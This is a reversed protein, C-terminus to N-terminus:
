ARSQLLAAALAQTESDIVGDCLRPRFRRQFAIIAKTLDSIDYGYNNVAQVTAAEAGEPAAGIAPTAAALGRAALRPWPFLEGPDMKRAPAVDSHGVVMDPAISHRACIDALLLELAAIQAEPFPRYGFEHGPNVLEIGISAANVDRVGRWYSLGAHWARRAEDVLQTIQGDEDICYHASVKAQPDCLRALASEADQMGTYHLVVMTVPLTRADHNPSPRQIIALGSM